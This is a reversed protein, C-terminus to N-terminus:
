CFIHLLYYLFLLKFCLVGYLIFYGMMEHTGLQDNKLFQKLRLKLQDLDPDLKLKATLSNWM